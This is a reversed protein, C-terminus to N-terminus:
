PQEVARLASGPREKQSKETSEASEGLGLALSKSTETLVPDCQSEQVVTPTERHIIEFEPDSVQDISSVPISTSLFVNSM